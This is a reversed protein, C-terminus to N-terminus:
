FFLRAVRPRGGISVHSLIFSSNSVFYTDGDNLAWRMSLQVLASLAVFRGLLINLFEIFKEDFATSEM